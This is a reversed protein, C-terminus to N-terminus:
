FLYALSASKEAGDQSWRGELSGVAVRTKSAEPAPDVVRNLKMQGTSNSVLVVGSGEVTVTKPRPVSLEAETDAERIVRNLEDTYVPDGVADYVWRHGLVSHEMEGVLYDSSDELAEGRYTLPVQYTFEGSRLLFTEIGVEGAPDVFRFTGVIRADSADGGKYWPQTPLWAKLLDLKSPTLTADPNVVATGSM